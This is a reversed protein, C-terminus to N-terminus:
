AQAVAAAAPVDCLPFKAEPMHEWRAGCARLWDPTVVPVGRAAAWRAKDTGGHTAIVHTVGDRPAAAVDAGLERALRWLAHTEPAAENQPFVARMPHPTLTVRACCALLSRACRRAGRSFMVVCGHLVRARMDRLLPRVDREEPPVSSADGGAGDFFAAHVRRVLRLLAALVGDDEDEDSSRALWTRSADAGAGAASSPFFHYREATIVNDRHRRWVAPTDDLILVAPAAGLVVDLDKAGATACDPAAILRGRRLLTGGPDLLRAMEAAYARDGMTYVLVECLPAAGILLARAGPRLKTWMRMYRLEYLQPGGPRAPESHTM